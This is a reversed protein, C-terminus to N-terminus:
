WPALMLRREEFRGTGAVGQTRRWGVRGTLLGPGARARTGLECGRRSAACGAPGPSFDPVTGLEVTGRQQGDRHTADGHVM